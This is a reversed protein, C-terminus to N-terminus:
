EEITKISGGLVTKRDIKQPQGYIVIDGGARTKAVVKESAMVEAEGGANCTIQTTQTSLKEAELTAGTNIVATHKQVKGTIEVVAGSGLKTELSQAEISLNVDSGEKAHLYFQKSKVTNNAQAVSGENVELEQISQYYLVAEIDEGHLLKDLPLRIKLENGIQILQVDESYHGSLEIKPENSEILILNIRDYVKVISYPELVEVRSQAWFLPCILLLVIINKM